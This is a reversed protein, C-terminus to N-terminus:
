VPSFHPIVGPAVPGFYTVFNRETEFLQISYLRYNPGTLV